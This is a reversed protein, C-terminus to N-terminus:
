RTPGHPVKLVGSLGKLVGTGGERYGGVIVRVFGDNPFGVPYKWAFSNVTGGDENDDNYLGTNSTYDFVYLKPDGGDSSELKFANFADAYEYPNISRGVVSIGTEYPRGNYCVGGPPQTGCAPGSSFTVNGTTYSAYSYVVVAYYGTTPPTFAVAPHRGANDDSYGLMTLSVRAQFAITGTSKWNADDYQFVVMVPDVNQPGGYTSMLWKTGATLQFQKFFVVKLPLPDATFEPYWTFNDSEGAVKALPRAPAPKPAPAEGAPAAAAPVIGYKEQIRAYLADELAPRLGRSKLTRIESDYGPAAPANGSGGSVQDASEMESCGALALMASALALNTGIRM